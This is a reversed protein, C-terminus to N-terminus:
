LRFETATLVAEDVDGGLSYHFDLDSMLPTSVERLPLLLLHPLFLLLAYLLRYPSPHPSLITLFLVICISWM